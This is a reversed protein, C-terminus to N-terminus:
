SQGATKASEYLLQSCSLWMSVWSIECHHRDPPPYLARSDASMYHCWKDSFARLRGRKKKEDIVNLSRQDAAVWSYIQPQNTHKFDFNQEARMFRARHQVSDYASLDRKNRHLKTMLLSEERSLIQILCFSKQKNWKCKEKLLQLYKFCCVARIFNNLWMLRFCVLVQCVYGAMMWCSLVGVDELCLGLNYAWSDPWPTHKDRVVTINVSICISNYVGFCVVCYM